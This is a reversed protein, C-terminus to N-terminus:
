EVYKLAREIIHVDVNEQKAIQIILSKVDHTELTGIRNRLNEIFEDIDNIVTVEEADEIFVDEKASQLNVIEVEGTNTNILVVSPMYPRKTKETRGLSGPNVFTKNGIKIIGYGPHYHGSLILDSETFFAVKELLTYNDFFPKDVLMGHALQILYRCGEPKIKVYENQRKDLDYSHSTGCIFVGGLENPAYHILESPDNIIETMGTAELIGTAARNLTNDNYGFKEHSGVISYIPVGWNRMKKAFTTIVSNAPDPSDFLDGGNLVAVIHERKIIEGIEDFKAELAETYNDKRSKPSMGRLHSDTFFLLKM